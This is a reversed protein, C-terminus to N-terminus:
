RLVPHFFIKSVNEQVVTRGQGRGGLKTITGVEHHKNNNIKCSRVTM